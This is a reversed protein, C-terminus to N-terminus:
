NRIPIERHKRKQSGQIASQKAPDVFATLIREEVPKHGEHRIQLIEGIHENGQSNPDKPFFSFAPQNKQNEDAESERNRVLKGAMEQFFPNSSYSGAMDHFVNVEQGVAVCGIWKRGGMGHIDKSRSKEQGLREPPQGRNKKYDGGDHAVRSNIHADVIGEIYNASRTDAKQDSPGHPPHFIPDHPSINVLLLCFWGALHLRNLLPIM